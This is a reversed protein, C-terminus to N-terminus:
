ENTYGLLSLIIKYDYDTWKRDRERDKKTKKSIRIIFM